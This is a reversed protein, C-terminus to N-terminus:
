KRFLLLSSGGVALIIAAILFPICYSEPNRAYAEGLLSLTLLKPAIGIGIIAPMWKTPIRTLGLSYTLIDFSILGSSYIAVLVLIKGFSIDDLSGISQSFRTDTLRKSVFDQGLVRALGFDIMQSLGVGLWSLGFCALPGFAIGGAITLPTLPVIVSVGQFIQLAVYIPYSYLKQHQLVSRLWVVDVLPGLFVLGIILAGVLLVGCTIRLAAMGSEDITHLASESAM